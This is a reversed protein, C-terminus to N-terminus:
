LAAMQSIKMQFLLSPGCLVNSIEISAQETLDEHRTITGNVERCLHYTRLLDRYLNPLDLDETLIYDLNTDAKWLVYPVYVMLGFRTIRKFSQVNPIELRYGPNSVISISLRAKGNRPGSENRRRM